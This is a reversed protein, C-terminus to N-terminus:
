LRFFKFHSHKKLKLSGFNKCIVSTQQLSKGLPGPQGAECSSKHFSSVAPAITIIIHQASRHESSPPPSTHPTQNLSMQHTMFLEADASYLFCGTGSINLLTGNIKGSCASLDQCRRLLKLEQGILLSCSVVHHLERNVLGAPFVQRLDFQAGSPLTSCQNEFRAIRFKIIMYLAGGLM